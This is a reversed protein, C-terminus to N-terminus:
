ILCKRCIVKGQFVVGRGGDDNPPLDGLSGVQVEQRRPAGHAQGVDSLRGLGQRRWQRRDVKDRLSIQISNRGSSQTRWFSNPFFSFSWKLQTAVRTKLMRKSCTTANEFFNGQNSGVLTIVKFICSCATFGRQFRSDCSLKLFL